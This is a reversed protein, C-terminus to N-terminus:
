ARTFHQCHLTPEDLHYLTYELGHTSALLAYLIYMCPIQCITPLTLTVCPSVPTVTLTTTAGGTTNLESTPPSPALWAELLFGRYMVVYM